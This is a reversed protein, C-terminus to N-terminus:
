LTGQRRARLLYEDLSIGQQAAKVGLLKQLYSRTEPSSLMARLNEPAALLGKGVSAGVNRLNALGPSVDRLLDPAPTSPRLSTLFNQTEQQATNAVEDFTGGIGGAEKAAREPDQSSLLYQRAQALAIPTFHAIMADSVEGPQLGALSFGRYVKEGQALEDLAGAIAKDFFHKQLAPVKKQVARLESTEIQDDIYAVMMKQEDTADPDNRMADVVGYNGAFQKADNILKLEKEIPAYRATAERKTQADALDRWSEQMQAKKLAREAPADLIKERENRAMLDALSDEEFKRQVVGEPLGLNQAFERLRTAQESLGPKPQLQQAGTKPDVVIQTRLADDRPIKADFQPDTFRMNRLSAIQRIHDLTGKFQKANEDRIGREEQGTMARSQAIMRNPLEKSAREQVERREEASMGQMQNASVRFGGQLQHAAINAEEVNQRLGLDHLRAQAEEQEQEQKLRLEAIYDELAGM